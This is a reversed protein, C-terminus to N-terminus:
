PTSRPPLGGVAAPPPSEGGLPSHHSPVPQLPPPAFTLHCEYHLGEPITLPRNPETAANPNPVMLQPIDKVSQSCMVRHCDLHDFYYELFAESHREIRQRLLPDAVNDATMAHSGLAIGHFEVPLWGTESTYLEVWTHGFIPTDYTSIGYRDPGQPAVVLGGTVERAPIGLLRCLAMYTRSLTICHGSDDRLAISTSCALCQCKENTKQFRKSRVLHEYLRRAKAVEGLGPEDLQLDALFDRVLRSRRLSDEVETYHRHESPTLPAPVRGAMPLNHVEVECSYSFELTGDAPDISCPYAYFFGAHPALYPRLGSPNCAILEVVPQQPLRLPYPLFLQASQTTECAAVHAKYTYTLRYRQSAQQAKLKGNRHALFPARMRERMQYDLEFFRPEHDYLWNWSTRKDYWALRGRQVHPIGRQRAEALLARLTPLSATATLPYLHRIFEDESVMNDQEIPDNHYIMGDIVDAATDGGKYASIHGAFAACRTSFEEYHDFLYRVQQLLDKPQAFRQRPLKLGLGLDRVRNLHYEQDLHKPAGIIPVGEALAHYISGIGGLGIFLAAQRMALRAPLYEVIRVNDSPAEVAYRGATTVLLRYPLPALARLVAPLFRDDVGTSGANFYILPLSTNWGADSLAAPPEDAIPEDEILPGVYHHSPPVPGASPHFPPVDALLFVSRHPQTRAFHEALYEDFRGAQRPFYDPLRIPSSYTPLNYAADILAIDIGELAATLRLTPRFDGILLSPQVQRVLAQEAQICRRIWADDYYAYDSRAVYEDMRQQPMTEVDYLTFGEAEIRPTHPGRGAFVVEYGRQRLARAIVLPRITHALSYGHFFVLIRHQDRQLTAEQEMKALLANWVTLWDWLKKNLQALM